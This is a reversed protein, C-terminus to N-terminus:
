YEMSEGPALAVCRCQPANKELALAFEGPNAALAPLVNYHMPVATTAGLLAAAYAADATGMTVAGGIPLLALEIGYREGLLRMDGFLATDGAHYLVRGEAKIIFGAAEGVYEAGREGSVSSSHLAPTMILTGFPLEASGGLNMIRTKAGRAACYRALESIAVIVAGTRKAIDIADGLHDFHGHTLAIFDPSVDEPGVDALLNDKLWPDILLKGGATELEFCAHGHFTLRM